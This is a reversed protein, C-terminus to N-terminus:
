PGAFRAGAGGDPVAKGLGCDPRRCGPDTLARARARRMLLLGALLLWTTAPAPVMNLPVQNLLGLVDLRYFLDGTNAVNDRTGGDESDVFAVAGFRLWHTLDAIRPLVGFRDLYLEQALLIAGSVVPAAMSTGGKGEFGSGAGTSTIFAGPAFIDTAFPGGDQASLRQSFSVPRGALSNFDRAGSSWAVNFGSQDWLAGVSITEPIIAPYGMGQVSGFNYFSNGAAVVVPVNRGYLQGILARTSDSGLMSQYNGGDGLSMNVVGINLADHHDLVWQLASDVAAGTGSGGNDLVRLSAIDAGPAIGQYVANGSAIIGAVHTGHTSGGGYWPDGDNNVYDYGGVVRYAPGFGGGLDAHLYNIGTDIVAATLGAGTVSFAARAEPARIAPGAEALLAKFGADSLGLEPVSLLMAAAPPAQLFASIALTALLSGRAPANRIRM